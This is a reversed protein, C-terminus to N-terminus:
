IPFILKVSTGINPQSEVTITGKHNTIIQYCIPLGLGTGSEKTSFFPNFINKLDQKQIGCGTDKIEIQASSSNKVYNVNIYIEGGRPMAEISNLILNLLVQKIQKPDINLILESNEYSEHAKIKHKLFESTLFELTDKILKAINTQEFSPPAPKSFDLLRHVINNIREVESPILKAFKKIFDEDKNDFKEPLYESFTKITTLPNKIEHALGLAMTAAVKLKQSHEIEQRLLKNEAAIEQPTKGLFISDILTQIKNRLPAFLLAIVLAAFLSAGFSRYGLIGRFLWEIGMILLLYIASLVAILISYILGKKIVVNIDMLQHKVIAYAIIFPFIAILFNSYPYINIGFTLLKDGYPGLLGIISAVIIYKIQERKIGQVHQYHKILLFLLYNLLILYFIICFSLYNLSKGKLWDVYYFQNFVFKLEGLFLSPAFFNFGLFIGALSYLFILLYKKNLRLFTFIFHSYFIPVLIAGIYSIQWGLLATEKSSTTSSIYGGVGWISGCICFLAFIISIKRDKGKWLVFIALSGTSLCILISSLTFPNM